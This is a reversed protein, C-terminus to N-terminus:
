DTFIGPASKAEEELAIARYPPVDLRAAEDCEVLVRCLPLLAKSREIHGLQSLKEETESSHRPTQSGQPDELPRSACSILRFRNLLHEVCQPLLSLLHAKQAKRAILHGVFLDFPLCLKEELLPQIQRPLHLREFLELLNRSPDIALAGQRLVQGMPQVPQVELQFGLM